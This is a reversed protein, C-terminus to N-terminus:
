RPVDKEGQWRRVDKVYGKSHTRSTEKVPCFIQVLKVAKM